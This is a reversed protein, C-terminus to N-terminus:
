RPVPARYMVTALSEAQISLRQGHCQLHEQLLLPIACVCLLTAHTVSSTLFVQRRPKKAWALLRALRALDGHPATVPM